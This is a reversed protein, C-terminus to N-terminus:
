PEDRRRHKARGSKRSAPQAPSRSLTRIAIWSRARVYVHMRRGDRRLGGHRLHGTRSLNTIVGAIRVARTRASATRAKAPSQQSLASPSLSSFDRHRGHWELWCTVNSGADAAVGLGSDACPSALGAGDDARGLILFESSRAIAVTVSRPRRLRRQNRSRRSRLNGHRFGCPLPPHEFPNSRSRSPPRSTPRPVERRRCTTTPPSAHIPWASM